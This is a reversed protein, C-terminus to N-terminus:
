APAEHAISVLAEILAAKECGIGRDKVNEVKLQHEAIRFRGETIGVGDHHGLFRCLPIKSLVMGQAFCEDEIILNGYLHGTYQTIDWAM